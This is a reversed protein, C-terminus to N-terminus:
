WFLFGPSLKYNIGVKVESLNQRVSVAENAGFTGPLANNVGGNSVIRSSIGGSTCKPM